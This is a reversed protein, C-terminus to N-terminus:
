DGLGLGLGLGLCAGNDDGGRVEEVVIPTVELFFRPIDLVVRVLEPRLEVARAGGVEVGEHFEVRAGPAGAVCQWGVHRGRCGRGGTPQPRVCADGRQLGTRGLDLRSRGAASCGAAVVAEALRAVLNLHGRAARRPPTPTATPMSISSVERGGGGGGSDQVRLEDLGRRAAESTRRAWFYSSRRERARVLAAAECRREISARLHTGRVRPVARCHM